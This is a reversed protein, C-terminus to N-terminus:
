GHPLVQARNLLAEAASVVAEPNAFPEDAHQAELSRILSGLEKGPPLGFRDALWRGDIGLDRKLSPKQQEPPRAQHEQWLAEIAAFTTKQDKNISGDPQQAWSALGDARCIELLDAFAPHNMLERQKGASMEALRQIRMHNAEIWIIDDFEAHGAMRNKKPVNFRELIPPIQDAGVRDHDYFTIRGGAEAPFQQTAPKGIDHLFAGWLLRRSPTTPKGQEDPPGQLKDLFLLKHQWVDGEAHVDPSQEIGRCVLLEPLLHNLVGLRELDELAQRRSPHTLLTTLENRLRDAPISELRGAAIADQMAQDTAQDYQFAYRHRFRVARLIRLPDEGIRLAPDGVFRIVGNRLDELGGVYDVLQNNIPDLALANITFDRRIVDDELQGALEVKTDKRGLHADVDRRFTAIEMEVPERQEHDPASHPLRVRAVAYAQATDTFTSKLFGPTALIQEPSANTTLDFDKPTKGLLLDRVAGGVFYAEYGQAQLLEAAQRAVRYEPPIPAIESFEIEPNFM